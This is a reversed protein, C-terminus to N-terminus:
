PVDVEMTAQSDVFLIKKVVLRSDRYVSISHKGPSIQYLKKDGAQLLFADMDDVQVQANEINGTFQLYSKEAKQVIGENYACSTILLCFLFMLSLKKM